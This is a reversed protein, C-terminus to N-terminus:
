LYRWKGGVRIYTEDVHWDVSARRLHKETRETIEPGFKIVWRYVTSRDIKIGRETHLDVIDQYSLPYRQYWGVACLIIDPPFRHHELPSKRPMSSRLVHGRGFPGILAVTGILFVNVVARIWSRDIGDIMHQTMHKQYFHTKGGPPAGQCRAAIRAADCDGAALIEARMPHELGTAQLYAAYVPEDWLACDGRAGFSYMMATSLNRPGSWMAIDM